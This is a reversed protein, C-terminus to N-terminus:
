GAATQEFDACCIGQRFESDSVSTWFRDEALPEHRALAFLM